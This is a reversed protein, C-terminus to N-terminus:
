EICSGRFVSVIQIVHVIIYKHKVVSFCRFIFRNQEPRSVDQMCNYEELLMDKVTELGHITGNKKVFLRVM